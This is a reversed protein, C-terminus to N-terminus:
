YKIYKVKVHKQKPRVHIQGSRTAQPKVEMVAKGESRAKTTLQAKGAAQNKAAQNKDVAQADGSSHVKNQSEKTNAANSEHETKGDESSIPDGWLHGKVATTGPMKEVPGFDGVANAGYGNVQALAAFCCFQATLILMSFAAYFRIVIMVKAEEVSGNV